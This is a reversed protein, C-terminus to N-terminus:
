RAAAAVASEPRTFGIRRRESVPPPEMLKRIADFVVKFQADYKREMLTLKQALEKHNSLIERLRLFARVVQISAQVAVPSNLVSALMLAGHETFVYPRQTSFKLRELHDCIAVVETKEKANLRFMFDKPFRDRNRKVQENLRKTSVGYVEALDLDLMVKYGRIILIKRELPMVLPDTLEAPEM